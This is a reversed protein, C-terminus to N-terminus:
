VAAKEGGELRFSGLRRRTQIPLPSRPASISLFATWLLFMLSTAHAATFSRILFEWVRVFDTLIDPCGNETYSRLHAPFLRACVHSVRTAERIFTSRALPLFSLLVFRRCLVLVPWWLM